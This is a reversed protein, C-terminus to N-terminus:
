LAPGPHTVNAMRRFQSSSEILESYTGKATVKGKELMYIVDCEQVTTLRHAVMIVTKKRSINRIAEMIANETIGDLASTAEDFILVKPDHYLARAIGIRQRQGGSLRVGREGVLTHYGDPLDHMIFDHLNAIRAAREVAKNDIENDRVGFAINRIVTDDTLYISQPVYGLNKQWSRVNARTIEIGDVILQGKAPSLLGLMIDVTTTKGSGTVGVFGVTTKSKIELNLNNVTPTSTNPYYYVINRLEIRDKFELPPTTEPHDFATDSDPAQPSLDNHLIDLAPLNYRITTMGIFIRQLAPMLRYGAFAYLSILPLATEANQKVGILYLVILLIGGFAITELAYRPLQSLIQSTAEYGAFQRSTTFYRQLFVSERGFLKLDKVGGLAESAVKFCQTRAEASTKGIRALKMRILGFVTAYAGGLVIAVTVALLPDVVILLGLISLAVVIKTLVQMGPMLVGGIVRHVEMLINKSLDATNRNLFFVYPQSLYKNLLRVSLSHGQLFTFRLLLWTIFSSFGNGFALVALVTVGSFFLFQNSSSFGLANYVQSLYKNTHIIAPNSVIGMFPAISVIGTIETLGMILIGGFLWCIHRKERKSFLAFIKSFNKIM